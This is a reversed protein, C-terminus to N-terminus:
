YVTMGVQFLQKDLNSGKYIVYLAKAEDSVALM